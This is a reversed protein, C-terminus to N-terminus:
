EIALMQKLKEELKVESVWVTNWREIQLARPAAAPIMQGDNLKQMLVDKVKFKISNGNSNFASPRIALVDNLSDEKASLETIQEIWKIADAGLKSQSSIVFSSGNLWPFPIELSDIQYYQELFDTHGDMSEYSIIAHAPTSDANDTDSDSFLPETMILHQQAIIDRLMNLQNETLSAPTKAVEEGPSSWAQLLIWFPFITDMDVNFFYPLEAVSSLEIYQDLKQTYLAHEETDEQNAPTISSDIDADIAEKNTQTDQATHDNTIFPQHTFMIYPNINYPVAWLYGNWKLADTLSQYQDALAESNMYRDVPQFLGQVTLPVIWENPLLQIDGLKGLATLEMWEQSKITDLPINILEAHIYPYYPSIEENLRLLKAYQEDPVSMVIQLTRHKEDSPEALLLETPESQSTEKINSWQFSKSLFLFAVAVLMLLGLVIPIYRRTNM